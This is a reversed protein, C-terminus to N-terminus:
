SIVRNFDDEAIIQMRRFTDERTNMVLSAQLDRSLAITGKHTARQM